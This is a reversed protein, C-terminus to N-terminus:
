SRLEVKPSTITGVLSGDEQLRGEFLLDNPPRDQIVDDRTSIVHVRKM